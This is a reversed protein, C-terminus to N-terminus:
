SNLKPALKDCYSEFNLWFLEFKDKSPKIPITVGLYNVTYQPWKFGLHAMPHDNRSINSGIQFAESKDLHLRCGSIRGFVQFINFVYKFQNELENLFKLTDDAFM